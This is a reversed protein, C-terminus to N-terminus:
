IGEKEIVMIGQGELVQGTEQEFAIAIEEFEAFAEVLEPTFGIADLGAEGYKLHILKCADLSISPEPMASLPIAFRPNLTLLGIIQSENLPFTITM